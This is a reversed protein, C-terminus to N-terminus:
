AAEARAMNARVEFLRWVLYFTLAGVFGHVGFYFVSEAYTLWAYKTPVGNVYTNVFRGHWNEGASFGELYRPWGPVAATMAGLVFGSIALSVVGALRLRRLLFFTPVGLVLVVAAAAIVISVFAPGAGYLPTPSAFYAPAIRVAYVLPQILVAALSAIWVRM